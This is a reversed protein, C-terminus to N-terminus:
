IKNNIFEELQERTNNKKGYIHHFEKHVEKSLTIGNEISTRLEPFDAFNNIHHVQLEGGNQGSIQCTFNDRKFIYKRWQEYETSKRIKESEPYNEMKGGKWFHNKNGREANGIKEKAENTHKYGKFSPAIRERKKASDSMKKKQEETRKKGKNAISIKNLTETSRHKGLWFKSNNESIKKKTEETHPKRNM